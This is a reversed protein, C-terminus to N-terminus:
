WNRKDHSTGGSATWTSDKLSEHAQMLHIKTRGWHLVATHSCRDETLSGTAVWLGTSPNFLEATSTCTGSVTSGGTVLVQGNQLLTSTHGERAEVVSGTVNWIGTEPNYLEASALPNSSADKGDAVLVQGNGLLTASHPTPATNLGGTNKWTGSQALIPHASTALLGITALTISILGFCSTSRDPLHNM